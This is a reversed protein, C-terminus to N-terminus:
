YGWGEGDVAAGGRVTAHGGADGSPSTGVGDGAPSARGAGEARAGEGADGAREVGGGDRGVAASGRGRGGVVSSDGVVHLAGVGLWVDSDEYEELLPDGTERGAGGGEGVVREGDMDGAECDSGCDSGSGDASGPGSAGEAGDQLTM